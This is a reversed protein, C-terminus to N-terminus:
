RNYHMNGEFSITSPHNNNNHNDSFLISSFHSFMFCYMKGTEKITTITSSCYYYGFLFLLFYFLQIFDFKRLFFFSFLHVFSSFAVCHFRFMLLSWSILFSISGWKKCLNLIWKVYVFIYIYFLNSGNYFHRWM